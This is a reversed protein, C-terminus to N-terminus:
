KPRKLSELRNDFAALVSQQDKTLNSIAFDKAPAYWIQNKAFGLAAEDSPEQGYTALLIQRVIALEAPQQQPNPIAKLIADVWLDVDSTQQPFQMLWYYITIPDKPKFDAYQWKIGDETPQSGIPTVDRYVWVHRVPFRKALMAAMEPSDIEFLGRYRLYAEFPATIVKFTAKEVNGAWSSGTETTYGAFEVCSTNLLEMWPHSQYATPVPAVIGKSAPALAMSMPIRYQVTLARDEKAQLSMKWTFIASYPDDKKPPDTRQFTVHYTNKEDRANFSYQGVWDPEKEPKDRNRLKAFQSDIPFGVQVDAAKDTLNRLGFNCSYEVEDMGVGGDFLSPGRELTITVDISVLQVSQSSIQRLDQGSGTFVGADGWVMSNVFLLVALASWHALKM